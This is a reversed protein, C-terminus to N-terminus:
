QNQGENLDRISILSVLHYRGFKSYGDRGEHPVRETEIELGYRYRLSHVHQTLSLIGYQALSEIRTLGQAHDYLYKLSRATRGSVRFVRAPHDADPSLVTIELRISAQLGRQLNAYEPHSVIQPGNAAAGKEHDINPRINM